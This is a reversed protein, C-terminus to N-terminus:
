RDDVQKRYMARHDVEELLIREPAKRCREVLEDWLGIRKEFEADMMATSMVEGKELRVLSGTILYAFRPIFLAPRSPEAADFWDQERLMDGCTYGDLGGGPSDKDFRGYQMTVRVTARTPECKADIAPSYELIRAREMVAEDIAKSGSTKILDVAALEGDAGVTVSVSARGNHGEAKAWQPIDVSKERVVKPWLRRCSTSSPAPIVLASSQPVTATDAGPPVANLVFAAFLLAVM